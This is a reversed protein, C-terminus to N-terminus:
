TKGLRIPINYEVKELTDLKTTRKFVVQPYGGRAPSGGTRTGVIYGLTELSALADHVAAISCFLRRHKVYDRVVLTRVYPAGCREVADLCIRQFRTM